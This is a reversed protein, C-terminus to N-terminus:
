DGGPYFGIHAFEMAEQSIGEELWPAIKVSYNLRDLITRDYEKLAIHYDKITINEIREYNNLVQWDLISNITDDEVKSGVIGFKFAVYRVAENLDLDLGKQNKHVKIMLQFVDFSPDDCGTYCQFLGTNSYYYLKRSGEGARNHCITTSVIGFNTFEPEGGWEEILQFVNDITLAQRVEAKDYNIM